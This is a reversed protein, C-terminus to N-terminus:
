HEKGKTKNQTLFTEFQGHPCNQARNKIISLFILFDLFYM